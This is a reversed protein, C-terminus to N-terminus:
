DHKEEPLWSINNLFDTNIYPNQLEAITSCCAAAPDGSAHLMGRWYENGPFSNGDWAYMAVLLKNENPEVLKEAPDRKSFHIKIKNNKADEIDEGDAKGGCNSKEPFWSFDIDAIHPLNNKQISDAYVEMMWKSQENSIQCVGLGLGVAHIYVKKSEKAGRQNAEILFPEVIYQIRQKYILINIFIDKGLGGPLKHRHFKQTIKHDNNDYRTQVEDYSLFFHRELVNENPTETEPTNREDYFRAWV